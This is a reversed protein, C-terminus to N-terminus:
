ALVIALQMCLLMTATVAGGLMLATGWRAVLSPNAVGAFIPSAPLLLAYAFPLYFRAIRPYRYPWSKLATHEVIRNAIVNQDGLRHKALALAAQESMGNSVAELRLDEFHDQLEVAIRDVESPVVGSELLRTQLQGCSYRRM